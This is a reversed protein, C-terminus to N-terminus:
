RAPQRAAAATIRYRDIVLGAVAPHSGLPETVWTAATKRLRDHFRGPAMLYAAVAVPGGTRTSLEAVADEVAPTGAAAFAAVVPVDLLDSLLGAQRRVATAALPDASGAAALVVPTGAPVGAEALRSALATVLLPDPGLASAVPAGAATAAGAIDATLHYGTSLLLPVIVVSNGAAALGDALSPETDQVFAVRVDLVPALRTVQSALQGVTERAAPVKSGHAVALLVPNSM